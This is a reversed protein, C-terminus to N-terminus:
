PAKERLVRFVIEPSRFDEGRWSVRYVGPGAFYKGLAYGFRLTARPPLARFAADRPGRSLVLASDPLEEGNVIIRSKGVQPDLVTDGDNILTFEIMLGTTEGPQFVAHNVALAAWLGREARPDDASNGPSRGAPVGKATVTALFNARAQEALAIARKRQAAAQTIQAQALAIQRVRWAIPTLMFACVVVAIM